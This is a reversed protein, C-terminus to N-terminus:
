KQFALLLQRPTSCDSRADQHAVALLGAGTQEGDECLSAARVGNWGVNGFAESLESVYGPILTDSV